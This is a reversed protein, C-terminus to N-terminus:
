VCGVTVSICDRVKYTEERGVAEAKCLRRRTQCTRTVHRALRRHVRGKRQLVETDHNNLVHQM